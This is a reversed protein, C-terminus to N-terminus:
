PRHLVPIDGNAGWAMTMFTTFNSSSQLNYLVSYAGALTLKFITGGPAGNGGTETTGYMNTDTAEILPAAPFGGDINNAFFTHLLTVAGAPTMKFLTGADAAGGQLNTGYFNGDSAQIMPANPNVGGPDAFTHLVNFRLQQAGATTSVALPNSLAVVVRV